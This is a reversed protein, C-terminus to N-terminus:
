SASRRFRRAAAAAAATAAAPAAALARFRANIGVPRGRPPRAPRPSRSLASPEARYLGCRILIQATLSSSASRDRGLLLIGCFSAAAVNSTEARTSRLHTLHCLSSPTSPRLARPPWPRM